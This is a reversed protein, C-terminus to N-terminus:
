KNRQRQSLLKFNIRFLIAGKRPLVCIKASRTSNFQSTCIICTPMFHMLVNKEEGTNIFCYIKRKQACQSFLSKNSKFCLSTYIYSLLGKNDGEYAPGNWHWYVRLTTKVCTSSYTSYYSRHVIAINKFFIERVM